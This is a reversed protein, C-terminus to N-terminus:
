QRRGLARVLRIGVSNIGPNQKSFVQAHSFHEFAAEVAWRQNLRVGISLNPNFLVRSGFSTREIYLDFRRAAEAASLGSAFPDPTFRYGDHVTLGIGIQGYIRDNLVHQRWEAGVSAFSTRGETNVQLRATLRPKLAKTLPASRYVLQIDASGREEEGQYIFGPPPDDRFPKRIAHDLVGIAIEPGAVQAATPFAALALAATM